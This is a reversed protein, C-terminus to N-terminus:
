EEEEKKIASSLFTFMFCKFLEESYYPKFAEILEDPLNQKNAMFIRTIGYIVDSRKGARTQEILRLGAKSFADGLKRQILKGKQKLSEILESANKGAVEDLFKKIENEKSIQYALELNKLFEKQEKKLISRYEELIAVLEKKDEGKGEQFYKEIQKKIEELNNQGNDNEAMYKGGKM